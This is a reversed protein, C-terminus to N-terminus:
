GIDRMCVYMCVYDEFFIGEHMAYCVYMCLMCAHMAYDMGHVERTALLWRDPVQM